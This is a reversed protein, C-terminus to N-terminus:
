SKFEEKTTHKQVYAEMEKGSDLEMLELYQEFTIGLYDAAEKIITQRLEDNLNLNPTEALNPTKEQDTM